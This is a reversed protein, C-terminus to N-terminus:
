RRRYARLRGQHRAGVPQRRLRDDSHPEWGNAEASDVFGALGVNIRRMVKLVDAGQTMAPWGGGHQFDAFTAKTPAFTNTEHLFGGVAIRTM